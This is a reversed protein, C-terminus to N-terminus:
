RSIELELDLEQCHARIDEVDRRPPLALNGPRVGQRKLTRPGRWAVYTGPPLQELAVEVDHIGRVTVQAWADGVVNEGSTIEPYTKARNTATVLAFVWERSARWSYLEYGKMSPPLPKTPPPGARPADRSSECRNLLLAVIVLGLIMLKSTELHM